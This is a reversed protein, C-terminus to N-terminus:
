DFVPHLYFYQEESQYKMNLGVQVNGSLDGGNSFEVARYFIIPNFFSVDFGNYNNQNTIVAEFLGINFNKTVNWSLHHMAVYKRFNTGSASPDENTVRRVDDMWM